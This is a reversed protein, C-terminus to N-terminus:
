HLKKSVNTQIAILVLSVWVSWLDHEHHCTIILSPDPAPVSEDIIKHLDCAHLLHHTALHFASSSSQLPGSRSAYSVGNAQVEEYWPSHNTSTPQHQYFQEHQYATHMYRNNIYHTFTQSMCRASKEMYCMMQSLSQTWHSDLQSESVVFRRESRRVRLQLQWSTAIKLQLFPRTSPNAVWWFSCSILQWPTMGHPLSWLRRLTFHIAMEIWHNPPLLSSPPDM